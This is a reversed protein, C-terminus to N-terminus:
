SKHIKERDALLAEGGSCYVCGKMQKEKKEMGLLGVNGYWPIRAM